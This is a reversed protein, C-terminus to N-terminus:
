AGHDNLSWHSRELHVLEVEVEFFIDKIKRALREAMYVSRHQGATCGFNVIMVEIDHRLCKLIDLTIMVWAAQFFRQTDADEDLADMIESDLGTLHMHPFPANLGDSSYDYADIARCDFVFGGGKGTEDKPYGTRKYSFSQVLVKM